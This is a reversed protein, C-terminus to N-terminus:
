LGPRSLFVPQSISDWDTTPIEAPSEQRGGSEGKLLHANNNHRLLLAQRRLRRQRRESLISLVNNFPLDVVVVAPGHGVIISPSDLINIPLSPPQGKFCSSM